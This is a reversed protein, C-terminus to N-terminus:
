AKLHTQSHLRIYRPDAGHSLCSLNQCSEIMMDFCALADIDVNAALLHLLRILEFTCVKKCALDIASRGKRSGGQNDTLQQNREVCQLVGQPGFWKLLLNYDAELLHLTRLCDIQPNGLDKKIFFNWITNWRDFTHCHRVAMVLLKHILQMVDSSTQEPQDENRTATTLINSPNDHSQGSGPPTKPLTLNMKPAKKQAHKEQHGDKLLAKYVGLHRGSPSTTTQEKWKHFGQMLGDYPMDQHMPQMTPTCYKQHQLLLRTHLDLPLSDFDATGQLVSQGFPTLGDHQLLDKLPAVTFPTGHSKSFHHQCYALLHDDMQHPETIVSWQSPETPDPVLLKTLGGTSKPKMFHKFLGFCRRNEEAHKLHMILKQKDKNKTASDASVLSDLYEERKAWAQQQLEWLQKRISQLNASISKGNEPDDPLQVLIKERATTYDKDNRAESLKIKWYWHTLYLHHLKLSWPFPQYTKSKQDQAVLIDTLQQDIHELEHHDENTFKYKCYLSTARNYLNLQDCAKAVNDNFTRVTPLDNSHVGCERPLEPLPLKHGFLIDYDFDLGLTRHDGPLTEPLGLLIWARILSNAFLKTGLCMDITLSGRSHMPPTSCQPHCHRHLDLLGTLHISKGLEKDPNPNANDENSDMCLLIEHGAQKWQLVQQILDEFLQKRPKPDHHGQQLLIHTQQTSVTNSGIIANQDHVCYVSAVILHVNHKGMLEIYSWQGLGSHDQGSQVLRSAHAGVISTFTGGPQYDKKAPEISNSTLIASRRFMHMLLQSVTRQKHDDWKVNPEQICLVQIHYSLMAQAIGHWQLNNDTFLVSNVNKSAICFIKPNELLENGWHSNDAYSKIPKQLHRCRVHYPWPKHSALKGSTPQTTTSDNPNLRPKIWDFLTAPRPTKLYVNSHNLTHPVTYPNHHKCQLTLLRNQTPLPPTTDVSGNSDDMFISAWDINNDLESSSM